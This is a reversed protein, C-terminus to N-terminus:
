IDLITNGFDVDLLYKKKKKKKDMKCDISSSPQSQEISDLMRDQTQLIAHTLEANVFVPQQPIGVLEAFMEPPIADKIMDIQDQLARKFDDEYLFAKKNISQSEKLVWGIGSLDADMNYRGSVYNNRHRVIDNTEITDNLSMEGLLSSLVGVDYSIATLLNRKVEDNDDNDSM